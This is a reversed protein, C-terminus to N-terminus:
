SKPGAPAKVALQGNDEARRWLRRWATFLPDRGRGPLNDSANSQWTDGIIRARGSQMRLYIKHQGAWVVEDRVRLNHDFLMVYTSGYRFIATGQMTSHFYERDIWHRHRVRCWQHWWKMTPAAGPVYWQKLNQYSSGMLAAHWKGALHLITHSTKRAEWASWWQMHDVIIVPTYNLRLKDVLGDIVDNDLVVCGNSDRPELPKNTGHLWIASGTRHQRRDLWNPYDLPLARTGYTDALYRQVVHKTAFYVGEPTRRDGERVKRGAHSGTSCPWRGKMRWHGMNAFLLVQQRSKDVVLANEANAAYVLVKPILGNKQLRPSQGWCLNIWLLSILVALALSGRYGKARVLRFPECWGSAAKRTGKFLAGSAAM